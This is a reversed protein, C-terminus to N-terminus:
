WKWYIQHIRAEYFKNGIAYMIKVYNVDWRLGQQTLRITGLSRPKLQTKVTPLKQVLARIRKFAAISSGRPNFSDVIDLELELRNAQICQCWELISCKWYSKNSQFITYVPLLYKPWLSIQAPSFRLTQLNM